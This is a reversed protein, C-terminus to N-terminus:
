PSCRVLRDVEGYPAETCRLLRGALVLAPRCNPTGLYVEVPPTSGDDLVVRGTFNQRQYYRPHGEWRDMRALQAPTLALVTHRERAKSVPALTCVVDGAARRRSCWVAAWGEIDAALAYIESGGFHQHLKQPNANSGYALVLIRGALCIPNATALDRWRLEGVPALGHLQGSGTLRWSGSPRTGPYPVAPYADPVDATWLRRPHEQTRLSM